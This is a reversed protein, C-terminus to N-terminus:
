SGGGLSMVKVWESGPDGEEDFAYVDGTDVEFFLSGTAVGSVQKDDTSLGSFEYYTVPNEGYQIQRAETARIM